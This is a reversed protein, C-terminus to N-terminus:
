KSLSREMQEFYHRVKTVIETVLKGEELAVTDVAAGAVIISPHQRYRNKLACNATCGSIYIVFDVNVSNYNVEYGRAVFIDQVQLALQGRDIRPNCGGCFVISIRWKNM